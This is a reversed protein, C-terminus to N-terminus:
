RARSLTKGSRTRASWPCQLQPLQHLLWNQRSRKFSKSIWHVGTYQQRWRRISTLVEFLRLWPEIWWQKSWACWKTDPNWETDRNTGGFLSVLADVVLAPISAIPENASTNLRDSSALYSALDELDATRGVRAPRRHCWVNGRSWSKRYRSCERRYLRWDNTVFHGFGSSKHPLLLLPLTASIAFIVKPTTLCPLAM